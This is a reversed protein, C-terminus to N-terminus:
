CILRRLLMPLRAASLYDGMDEFHLIACRGVRIDTQGIGILAKIRDVKLGQTV